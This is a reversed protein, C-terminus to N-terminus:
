SKFMTFYFVVCMVLVGFFLSYVDVLSRYFQLHYLVVVVCIVVLFYVKWVKESLGIVNDGM